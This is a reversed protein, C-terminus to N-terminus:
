EDYDLIEDTKIKKEPPSEKVVENGDMVAPENLTKYQAELPALGYKKEMIFLLQKYDSSDCALVAMALQIQTFNPKEHQKALELLEKTNLSSQQLAM